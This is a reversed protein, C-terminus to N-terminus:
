LSMRLFYAHFDRKCRIYTLDIDQSAFFLCTKGDKVNGKAIGRFFTNFFFKFCMKGGSLVWM